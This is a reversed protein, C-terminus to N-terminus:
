IEAWSPNPQWKWWYGNVSQLQYLSDIGAKRLRENMSRMEPGSPYTTGARACHVIRCDDIVGFRFRGEKARYWEAEIGWGMDNEDPLPLIVKAFTPDVVLLPGQEVYNSDRAVLFPRSVNFPSTWWGLISQSPQALSLGARKMISFIRTLSGRVLFVDDDALVVWSGEMVPKANYLKNLNSFRTGPGTGVTQAALEPAIEDLAWLRVDASSNVQRLLAKVLQANRARYVVLLLVPPDNDLNLTNFKSDSSANTLVRERVKKRLPDIAMSLVILAMRFGESLLIRLSSRKPLTVVVLRRFRTHAPRERTLIMSTEGAALPFAPGSFERNSDSLSSDISPTSVSGDGLTRLCQSM